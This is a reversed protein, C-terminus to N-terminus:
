PTTPTQPPLEAQRNFFQRVWPNPSHDRLEDPRGTGIIGKTKGDLM